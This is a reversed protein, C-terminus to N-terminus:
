PRRAKVIPLCLLILGIIFTAIGLGIRQGTVDHCVDLCNLSRPVYAMAFTFVSLLSLGSLFHSRIDLKQLTGTNKVNRVLKSETIIFYIACVTLLVLGLISALELFVLGSILAVPLCLGQNIRLLASM